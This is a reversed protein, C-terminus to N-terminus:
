KLQHAHVVPALQFCGSPGELSRFPLSFCGTTCMANSSASVYAFHAPLSNGESASHSNAARPPNSPFFKVQPSSSTCNVFGMALVHCPLNGYSFKNISLYSPVEGTPDNSGLPYPKYSM